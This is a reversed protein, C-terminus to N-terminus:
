SPLEYSHILGDALWRKLLSAAHLPAAEAGAFTCLRECIAGFSEGAALADWAATEDAALSRWRVDLAAGRWLLWARVRRAARLRPPPQGGVQAAVLNPANGLLDLRRLAARPLLRLGAWAEPPIEGMTEIALAEEDPADFVEGQAWEFRALEALVPRRSWPVTTSLFHALARGFWRVSRMTSPHADLYARGLRDFAAAGLVARLAPFDNALVEVLRLRYADVYIGVRTAADARLDGAVLARLHPSGSPERVEGEFLLQVGALAPGNSVSSM